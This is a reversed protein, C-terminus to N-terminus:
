LSADSKAAWGGIEPEFLLGPIDYARQQKDVGVFGARLRQM